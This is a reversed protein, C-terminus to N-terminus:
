SSFFLCTLSVVCCLLSNNVEELPYVVDLQDSQSATFLEKLNYIELHVKGRLWIVAADCIRM